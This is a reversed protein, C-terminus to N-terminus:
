KLIEEAWKLSDNWCCKLLLYIPQTATSDLGLKDAALDCAEYLSLKYFREFDVDPFTKTILFKNQTIIEGVWKQSNAAIDSLVQDYSDERLEAALRVAKAFKDM